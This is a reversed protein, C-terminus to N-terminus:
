QEGEAKVARQLEESGSTRARELIPAVRPDNPWARALLAIAATVEPTPQALKPKGLLTRGTVVIRLLADLVAPTKVDRLARLLQLRLGTSFAPSDLCRLAFPIASAPMANQAARLGVLVTREDSDGLALCIARDRELVNQTALQLAERRVTARPDAAHALASFGAPTRGIENLLALM